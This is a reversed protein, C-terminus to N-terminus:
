EKFRVKVELLKGTVKDFRKKVTYSGNLMNTHIVVGRGPLDGNFSGPLDLNADNQTHELFTDLDKFPNTPDPTIIGDPYNQSNDAMYGIDGIFIAGSQINGKLEQKKKRPKRKM